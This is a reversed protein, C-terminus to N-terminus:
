NGEREDPSTAALPMNTSEEENGRECEVMGFTKERDPPPITHHELAEEVFARCSNPTKSVGAHVDCTKFYHVCETEINWTVVL